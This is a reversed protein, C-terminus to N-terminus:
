MGNTLRQEIRSQFLIESHEPLMLCTGEERRIAQEKIAPKIQKAAVGIYDIAYPVRNITSSCLDIFSNSNPATELLQDFVHIQQTFDIRPPRYKRRNAIFEM